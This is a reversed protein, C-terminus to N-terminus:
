GAVQLMEDAAYHLPFGFETIAVAVVAQDIQVEHVHLSWDYQRVIDGPHLDRAKVRRGLGITSSRAVAVGSQRGTEDIPHLWTEPSDGTGDLSIAPSAIVQHMMAEETKHGTAFRQLADGGHIHNRCTRAAM